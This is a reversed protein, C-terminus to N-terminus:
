SDIRVLEWVPLEDGTLSAQLAALERAGLATFGRAVRALYEASIVARGRARARRLRARGSASGVYAWVRGPPAGAVRATVDRRVYNRERRDLAPLMGADVPLCLGTVTADRRRVIDLFAVCVSPRTGDPRLYHKYQPLDRRNDMAVGWRRAYGSLEAVTGGAAALSGYAFVFERSM